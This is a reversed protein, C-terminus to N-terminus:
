EKVKFKKKENIKGRAVGEYEINLHAALNQLSFDDTVLKAHLDFALAVVGVDTESLKKLAGIERAVMRVYETMEESASSVRLSGKARAADAVSRSRADKLENLVDQTTFAESEELIQSNIFAASDLVIKMISKIYM